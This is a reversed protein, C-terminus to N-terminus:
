ARAPTPSIGVRTLAHLLPFACDIGNRPCDRGMAGAVGEALPEIAIGSEELALQLAQELPVPMADPVPALCGIGSQRTVLSASLRM